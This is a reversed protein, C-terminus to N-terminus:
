QNTETTTASPLTTSAVNTDTTTAVVENSTQAPTSFKKMLAERETDLVSLNKLADKVMSERYVLVEENTEIFEAVPHKNKWYSYASGAATVAFIGLAIALGLIWEREPHMLRQDRLGRSHRLIHQAM